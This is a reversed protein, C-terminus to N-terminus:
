AQAQKKKSKSSKTSKPTTGESDNLNSTSINNSTNSRTSVNSSQKKSRTPTNSNDNLENSSKMRSSKKSPSSNDQFLKGDNSEREKQDAKAEDALNSTPIVRNSVNNAQASTGKLKFVDLLISQKRAVNEEARGMRNRSKVKKEAKELQKKKKFDILKNRSKQPDEFRKKTKALWYKEGMVFKRLKIQMLLVPTLINNNGVKSSWKVVDQISLEPTWNDRLDHFISQMTSSTELKRKHVIDFTDKLDFYRVRLVGSLDKMLYVIAGLQNEPITLLNWMCCVFELFNFKGSKDADFIHFVQKEFASFDSNMFTFIDVPQINGGGHVDVEKFVTYFIDIEDEEIGMLPAVEYITDDQGEIDDNPVFKIKRSTCAGM